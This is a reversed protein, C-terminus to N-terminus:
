WVFFMLLRNKVRTGPNVASPNINSPLTKAGSYGLSPDNPSAADYDAAGSSQLTPEAPLLPVTQSLTNGGSGSLSVNPGLENLDLKEEEMNEETFIHRELYIQLLSLDGLLDMFDESQMGLSFVRLNGLSNESFIKHFLTVVQESLNQADQLGLQLQRLQNNLLLYRNSSTHGSSTEPPGVKRIAENLERLNSLIDRLREM